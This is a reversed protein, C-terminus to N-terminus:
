LVFDLVKDIESALEDLTAARLYRDFTFGDLATESAHARQEATLDNEFGTRTVHLTRVSFNEDAWRTIENPFRVDPILVYDFRDSLVKVLRIVTDVWFHEDRARVTETGFHQWLSRNEPTREYSGGLYSAVIFKLYDAYRINLVRKGKETLKTQLMEAATDKGHRAKGSLTIILPRTVTSERLPPM